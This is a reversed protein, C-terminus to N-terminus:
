LRDTNIDVDPPSVVLFRRFHMLSGGMDKVHRAFGAALKNLDGEIALVLINGNDVAAIWEEPDTSGDLVGLIVSGELDEADLHQEANRLDLDFEGM